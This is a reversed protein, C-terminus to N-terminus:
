SNIFENLKTIDTVVLGKPKKYVLNKDVLVSLQRSATERALGCKSALQSISTQIGLGSTTQQGFRQTEIMIELALRKSSHATLHMALRNTIGDLGRALRALIQLSIDPNNELFSLVHQKPVLRVKTNGVAVFYNHTTTNDFLWTLSLFAPKAFINVIVENGNSAYDVQKIKGSIIFFIDSPKEDASIITSGSSFSKVPLDSWQDGLQINM